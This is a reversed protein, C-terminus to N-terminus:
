AIYAAGVSFTFSPTTGGITAVVRWTRSLVDSVTENATEAVGPYITLDDSGTTTKQAFAAGPLDIYTGSVADKTQVKLDLTPTTGSAASINLHLRVGRAFRNVQDTSNTTSTRAASAFVTAESNPAWPYVDDATPDYGFPLADVQEVNSRPM